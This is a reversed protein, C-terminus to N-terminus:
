KIVITLGNPASPITIVIPILGSAENSKDSMKTQDTMNVARVVYYYTIGEVLNQADTYTCTAGSCGVATPGATLSTTSEQGSTTGRFIMYGVGTTPSPNWTLTVSHTASQAFLPTALLFVVVALITRKM